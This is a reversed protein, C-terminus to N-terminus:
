LPQQRTSINLTRTSENTKRQFGRGLPNQTNDEGGSSWQTGRSHLKNKVVAEVILTKTVVMGGRRGVEQGREGKPTQNFYAVAHEGAEQEPKGQDRSLGL